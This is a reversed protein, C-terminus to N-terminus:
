HVEVIHSTEVSKKIALAVNLSKMGEELTMSTQQRTEIYKLFCEMELMFMENRAFDQYVEESLMGDSEYLYRNEILDVEIKGKTGIVNCKRVHPNQLYDQHIIVPYNQTEGEYRCISTVADEGDIELDSYKDGISYVSKPMGFIWCIYDLEHIQCIVVGGESRRAEIMERYDEYKHMKTILEGMQCDVYVIEGIRRSEIDRKLRQLCPHFRMQFGVYLIVGNENIIQLLTDIGETNSSVPKELFIDIGKRAVKIACEIHKSNPNAVIAFDPSEELAEELTYYEKIRYSISVNCGEVINLDDDFQRSLRRERYAIFEISGDMIKKLNRMHRQGASGLGILLVKM